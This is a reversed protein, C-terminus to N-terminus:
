RLSRPPNRGYRLDTGLKVAHNGIVKTWNNVIQFSTKRRPSLATAALPRRPRRRLAATHQALSRPFFFGPSGGTIAQATNLGPMGLANAELVSEDNKIDIINYRLYGLRLDMILKPSFVYDTGIALSDDSSTSNGGYGGIGFGPGGASGYM